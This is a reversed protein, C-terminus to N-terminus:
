PSSTGRNLIRDIHEALQVVHDATVDRHTVFRLGGNAYGGGVRFGVLALGLVLAKAEAEVPDPVVGMAAQHSAAWTSQGTVRVYVINSQVDPNLVAVGQVGGLRAALDRANEHDRALPAVNHELAYLGAAALVGAQRMGGGVMKRLSRARAVFRREGFVVSGVPAGLGKSLCFTGSDVLAAIDAAPCGLATAANFLRAGDLHVHLGHEHATDRLGPLCAHL